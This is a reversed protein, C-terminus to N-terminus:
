EAAAPDWLLALAIASRTVADQLPGSAAPRWLRPVGTTLELAGVIRGDASFLYGAPVASPLPTGQLRHESRLELTVGGAEYRGRREHRPGLTASPAALELRAAGWECRWGFRQVAAGVIGAGAVTQSGRCRGEDPAGSGELVYRAGVRDREVFPLGLRSAEREFRGQRQGLVLRGSTSGGLGELELMESAAPLDDPLAMRAAPLSACGALGAMVLWATGTARALASRAVRRRGARRM